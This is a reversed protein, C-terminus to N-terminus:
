QQNYLNGIAKKLELQAIIADYLASYYNTQAEKYSNDAEVVELNSGVGEEYKIQTIDFINSALDMSEQQVELKSVANSLNAKAQAVELDISKEMADLGNEIKLLSLKEQQIQYSRQLGTFLNWNLRLGLASYGYWKDPGIRDNGEFSAQTTFIGGFDPSQTNYGLTAFASISPIAEAYKNKINLEQLEKNALMVQYDPREAYSVENSPMELETLAVDELEGALVLDQDYPYNMQFKLLKVSIDYMSQLDQLSVKLNNLSVRIRDVDLQEAFGNEQMAKTNRYLTDLRGLNSQIMDLREEMILLNYFAKSVQLVVDEKTQNAQKVSLDKYAKSAQLGVIYSGNFIIQNINLNADGNGKLAFINELAAVDGDEMGLQAATADDIFFSQGGATYQTFFRQQTPSQQATVTGSIQPLGIGVTEKVRAKAIEEDLKANQANVNNALAYDICQQLTFEQSGSSEQARLWTATMLLLLTLKVKM